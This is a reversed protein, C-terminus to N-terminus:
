EMEEVATVPYDGAKMIEKISKISTKSADYKIDATTKEIDVDVSSVGEIGRLLTDAEAGASACNAEPVTLRVARILPAAAEADMTTTSSQFSVLAFLAVISILVAKAPNM